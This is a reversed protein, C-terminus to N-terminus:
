RRGTRLARQTERRRRHPRLDRGAEDRGLRRVVEEAPVHQGLLVGAEAPMHQEAVRVADRGLLALAPEKLRVRRLHARKGAEPPEEAVTHNVLVDPQGANPAVALRRRLLGHLVLPM